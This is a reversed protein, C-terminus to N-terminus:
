SLLAYKDVINKLIEVADSAYEAYRAIFIQLCKNDDCGDFGHSMAYTMMMTTLEENENDPGQDVRTECEGKM